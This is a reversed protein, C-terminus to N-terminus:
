AERYDNDYAHKKELETQPQDDWFVFARLEVSSRGPGHDEPHRFASHLSRRCTKGGDMRTDFCKILLAESPTMNSVWYWSHEPKHVGMWLEATSPKDPNIVDTLFKAPRLDSTPVSRGDACALPERNITAIPRWTNIIAWRSGQRSRLAEKDPGDSMRDLVNNM